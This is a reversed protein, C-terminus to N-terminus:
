LGLELLLELTGSEELVAGQPAVEAGHPVFPAVMLVDHEQAVRGVGGVKGHSRARLEGHLVGDGEAPRELARRPPVDGGRECRVLRLPAGRHSRFLTTYPFLTSRPPRRIM